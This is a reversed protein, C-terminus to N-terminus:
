LNNVCASFDLRFPISERTFRGCIRVSFFLGSSFFGLTAHVGHTSDRFVLRSSIVLDSLGHYKAGEDQLGSKGLHMLCSRFM